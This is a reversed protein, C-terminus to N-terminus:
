SLPVADAPGGIVVVRRGGTVRVIRSVPMHETPTIYSIQDERLGDFYTEMEDAAQDNLQVARLSTMARWTPIHQTHGGCLHMMGGHPYISLIDDDFPAIATRYQETSLLHTSCGCLQGYGETQVRGYTEVMRLQALPINNLYWRHLWSITDSIVELDHRAAEPDCLM